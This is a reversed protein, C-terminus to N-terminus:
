CAHMCTIGCRLKKEEGWLGYRFHVGPVVIKGFRRERSVTNKKVALNQEIGDLGTKGRQGRGWFLRSYLRLSGSAKVEKAIRCQCSQFVGRGGWGSGRNQRKAGLKKKQKALLTDGVSCGRQNNRSGRGQAGRRSSARGLSTAHESHPGRRSWVCTARKRQSQIQGACAQRQVHKWV